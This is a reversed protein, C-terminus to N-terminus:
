NRDPGELDIYLRDTVYHWRSSENSETYMNKIFRKAALPLETCSAV